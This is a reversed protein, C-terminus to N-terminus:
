KKSSAQTRARSLFIRGPVSTTASSLHHGRDISTRLQLEAQETPQASGPTVSSPRVKVLRANLKKWARVSKPVAGRDWPVASGTTTALNM